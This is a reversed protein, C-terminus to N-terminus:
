DSEPLGAVEVVSESNFQAAQGSKREGLSGSKVTGVWYRGNNSLCMIDDVIAGDALVATTGEALTRQVSTLPGYKKRPKAM